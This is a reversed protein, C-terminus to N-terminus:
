PWIALIGGSLALVVLYHITHILYLKFPKRDWLVMGLQTTALLGLWLWFGTKMGATFTTAGSYKIFIALVYAMVLVTIFGMIMTGAMGKKQMEKMEKITIKNLKMWQKGFGSKGFWWMGIGMSVISSVLVAWLNVDMM